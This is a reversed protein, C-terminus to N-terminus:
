LYVCGHAKCRVQQNRKFGDHAALLANLAREQDAARRELPADPNLRTISGLAFGVSRHLAAIELVHKAALVHNQEYVDRAKEYDVIAERLDGEDQTSEGREYLFDAKLRYVSVIESPETM